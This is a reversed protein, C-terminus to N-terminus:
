LKKAGGGNSKQGTDSCGAESDAMEDIQVKKVEVSFSNKEV